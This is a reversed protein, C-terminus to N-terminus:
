PVFAPAKERSVSKQIKISTRRLNVSPPHLKAKQNKIKSKKEEGIVM